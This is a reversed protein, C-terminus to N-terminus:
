LPTSLIVPCMVKVLMAVDDPGVPKVPLFEESAVACVCAGKRKCPKM